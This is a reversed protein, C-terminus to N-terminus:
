RSTFKRYREYCSMFSCTFSKRTSHFRVQFCNLNRRKGVGRMDETVIKRHLIPGLQGNEKRTLSQWCGHLTYAFTFTPINATSMITAKYIIMLRVLHTGTQWTVRYLFISNERYFLLTNTRHALRRMLVTNFPPVHQRIIIDRLHLITLARLMIQMLLNGDANLFAFFDSRHNWASHLQFSLRCKPQIERLSTLFDTFRALWSLM